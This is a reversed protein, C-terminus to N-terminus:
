RALRCTLLLHVPLVKLTLVMINTFDKMKISIAANILNKPMQELSVLERNEEGHLTAILTGDAAYIKSTLAGQTASFAELKPLDGVFGAVITAGTFTLGGVTGLALLSALTLVAFIPLFIKLGLRSKRSIKNKRRYRSM